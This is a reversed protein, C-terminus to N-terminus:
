VCVLFGWLRATVYTLLRFIELVPTGQVVVNSIPVGPSLELAPVLCFGLVEDVLGPM